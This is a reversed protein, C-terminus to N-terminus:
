PEVAARLVVEPHAAMRREIEAREPMAAAGVGGVSVSAAAGGFRAAEEVDGTEHLRILFATAFTDGAGTPDVEEQPFADMESWAGEVCVRAGRHSRTMVVLRVDRRWRELIGDDDALDEDSVFVVDAGAWFPAGTWDTKRVHGEDDLERLWGQASVGVLCEPAFAAVFDPPAEGLVPGVLVIPATRWEAPIDAVRLPAGRSVVRQKRHGERYTNEFSTTAPSGADVIAAFPMRNALDLDGATRTVVGVRMGLRHAQVAAFTVTGGLEWGGPVVDRVFHGAVVFEPAVM